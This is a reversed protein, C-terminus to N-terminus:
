QTMQKMPLEIDEVDCIKRKEIYATFCKGM